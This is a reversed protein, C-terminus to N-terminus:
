EHVSLMWLFGFLPMAVVLGDLMREYSPRRFGIQGLGLAIAGMAFCAVSAIRAAPYAVGTGPLNLDFVVSSLAAGALVIFLPNLFRLGAFVLVAALWWSMDTFPVGSMKEALFFAVLVLGTLELAEEIGTRFLSKSAILWEALPVLVVGAFLLACPVHLLEFIGAVLAAAIVGLVFLLCRALPTVTIWPGTRTALWPDAGAAGLRQAVRMWREEEPTPRLPKM